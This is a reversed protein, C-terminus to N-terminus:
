IGTEALISKETFYVNLMTRQQLGALADAVAHIDAPTATPKVKSFSKRRTTQKGEIVGTDFVMQFSAEPNLKDIM